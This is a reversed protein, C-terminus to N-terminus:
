KKIFLSLEESLTATSVSNNGKVVSSLTSITTSTQPPPIPPYYYYYYTPPPPPPAYYMPPPPPPPPPPPTPSIYSIIAWQSDSFLYPRWSAYEWTKLLTKLKEVEQPLSLRKRIHMIMDFLYRRIEDYTIHQMTVWSSPMNKLISDILFLIAFNRDSHNKIEFFHQIILQHFVSLSSSDSPSTEFYLQTMKMIKSKSPKDLEGMKQSIVDNWAVAM